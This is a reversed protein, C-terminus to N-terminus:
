SNGHEHEETTLKKITEDKLAAARIETLMGDEVMENIMSLNSDIRSNTNYADFLDHCISHWVKDAQQTTVWGHSGNSWRVLEGPYTITEGVSPSVPLDCGPCKKIKPM